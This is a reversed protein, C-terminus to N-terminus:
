SLERQLPAGAPRVNVIQLPPQRGGVQVSRTVRRTLETRLGLGGDLLELAAPPKPDVSHASRL